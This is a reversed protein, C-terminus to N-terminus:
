DLITEVGILTSLKNIFFDSSPLRFDSTFPKSWDNKRSRVESKPSGVEKIPKLISKSSVM